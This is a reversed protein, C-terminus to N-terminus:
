LKREVIVLTNNRNGGHEIVLGDIKEFGRKMSMGVTNWGFSIVIGDKKTTEAIVNRVKTFGGSPDDKNWEKIGYNNYSMSVQTLSYPPDYFWGDFKNCKIVDLDVFKMADLHYTAQLNPNLDNTITAYQNSMGCFPDGWCQGEKWYKEILEKVVPMQFTWKNPMSWVLPLMLKIKSM